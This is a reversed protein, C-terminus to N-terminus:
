HLAGQWILALNQSSDSESLRKILNKSGFEDDSDSDDHCFQNWRSLIGNFKKIRDLSISFIDFTDFKM